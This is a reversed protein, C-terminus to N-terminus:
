RPSADSLPEPLGVIFDPVCNSSIQLSFLWCHLLSYLVPRTKAPYFVQIGVSALSVKNNIIMILILILTILFCLSRELGLSMIRKKLLAFLVVSDKMTGVRGSACVVCLLLVLSSGKGRIFLPHVYSSWPNLHYLPCHPRLIKHSSILLPNAFLPFILPTWPFLTTARTDGGERCIRM